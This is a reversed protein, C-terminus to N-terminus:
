GWLEPVPPDVLAGRYNLGPHRDERLLLPGDLDVWDATGALLLAPAMSLSTAVMCGVMIKLDLSRARHLLDLAATLGGTKDLKVNIADYRGALDALGDPDRCSEDATIPVPHTIDALLGDGNAPLPQEVMEVQNASAAQLLSELDSPQWGENADVILRADPRAKRVLSIREKDGTDGLKLKLLPYSCSAAKEAMTEPRDLSITYATVHSQPPDLEALENVRRSATKAELDWLACDVANRAAGAPLLDLLDTRALGHQLEKSLSLIQSKVSELSEGYHAYPVCEGQGTVQGSTLVVRITEASTKPGRSITFVQSLPWSEEFLELKIANM